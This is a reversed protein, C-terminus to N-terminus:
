QHYTLAKFLDNWLNHYINDSNSLWPKNPGNFHVILPSPTNEYLEIKDVFFNFTVPLPSIFPQMFISIVDQEIFKTQGKEKVYNIMKSEIDNARWFNLDTIFVGDNIYPIDPSGFVIESHKSFDDQVLAIFPNYNPYNLIPSIDRMVMCDPDIYIARDYEKCISSIFMRHWANKTFWKSERLDMNKFELSSKFYININNLGNFSEKFLNEKDMLYDPVLCYLILSKEGNYNDSLTKIMVKSYDIYNEDFSTVIITKM